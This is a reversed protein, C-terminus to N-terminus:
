RGSLQAAISAAKEALNSAFVLNRVQLAEEAQRVFGRATELQQRAEGNLSQVNIRALVGSTQNLQIRLKRDAETEQQTPVTQLTPPPPVAARGTDETRPSDAVVEPRPEPPRAETRAPPVVRRSPSSTVPEEPLPVILPDQPDTVEVLRPPPAPMELPIEPLARAEAHRCGAGAGILLLGLGCLAWLDGRRGRVRRLVAREGRDHRNTPERM